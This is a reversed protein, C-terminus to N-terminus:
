NDDNMWCPCCSKGKWRKDRFRPPRIIFDNWKAKQEATLISEIGIKQKARLERVKDGDNRDQYLKDMYDKHIKYIKDSQDDTLGLEKQMFNIHFLGIGFHPGVPFGNRGKKLKKNFPQNNMFDNWKTKQDATLLGKIDDNIKERLERIKEPNKRNQYFKDMYDKEIKYIKDVQANTLEFSYQLMELHQFPKHMGMGPIQAMLSTASLSLIMLSFMTFSIKKM